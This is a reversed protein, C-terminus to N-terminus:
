VIASCRRRRPPHRKDFHINAGVVHRRGFSSVVGCGLAIAHDPQVADIGRGEAEHLGGRPLPPLARYLGSGGTRPQRAHRDCQRGAGPPDM